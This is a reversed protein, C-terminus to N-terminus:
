SIVIVVAAHGGAAGSTVPDMPAVSPARTSLLRAVREAQVRDGPAYLVQIGPPRTESVDGISSVSVRKAQLAVALQHAAGPTSTANLVVVPVTPLAPGRHVRKVRAAPPTTAHKHWLEVYAAAGAVAILLVLLATIVAPRRWRSRRYITTGENWRPGGTRATTGMGYGPLVGAGAGPGGVGVGAGSTGWGPPLGALASRPALGGRQALREGVEQGSAMFRRARRLELIRRIALFLLVPLALLTVVGAIGGVLERRSLKSAPGAIRTPVGAAKLVVPVTGPGAHVATFPRTQEAIALMEGNPLSDTLSNRVWYVAGHEYWAVMKLNSAEYFLYYTRGGVHVTQDPSDFQPATTWTMGQVDYYQGLSGTAFVSVYAPYGSGDPAHILYGRLSPPWISGGRDEVRPFELPFPLNLAEARAQDLASSPTPVLPLQTIAHQSHVAHAAAATSRKPISSAGYLFSNVSASIQQQTATDVTAQLNAQFHVQRVHRGASSALTGILNLIGTTSQLGPDTQVAKGFIHEFKGVNDALTPGYEKKVDLLFSQDRADRVLSTDGHRYSVFQLAQAGCLKQYGPQLNIEQYQESGPVNVHYYRRDVTSYVCGMEDVARKFRGFTIVIVHNVSLGLVQKITSVLTGIGYTYASNFRGLYPQRHPPYIMVQLERPISMMSIYPKNPDLRVLLMENALHPVAVHYYRTLSRQDDGVLLLTQPDGWGASALTGADVRLVGNQKLADRLTHVQELVFVASASASCVVVILAGVIIQWWRWRRRHEPPEEPPAGQPPLGIPPVPAGGRPPPPVDPRIGSRPSTTVSVRSGM